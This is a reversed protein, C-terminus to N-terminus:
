FVPFIVAPCIRSGQGKDKTGDNLGRIANGAKVRQLLV